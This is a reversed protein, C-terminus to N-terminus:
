GGIREELTEALEAIPVRVQEMTDRDRITVAQDDLTEYDITVCYPTGIEDQRRYRRGISQTEDYDTPFSVRLMRFVEEAKATLEPKKMLPLVAVQFPAIRPHFRLVVRTYPKGNVDRAEEEDYADLMLALMLREVGMTPEIVHPLFREGTQQDFYTLDAGSYEQHRRLDFDTRYALGCLEKWGFPFRYEFDVTRKSYHSLEEPGHERTRLWRDTLGVYRFFDAMDALWREFTPEWEEPRIFYEIEMQEFELLRFIFNGPTIENRFAKGIQGIGFPIKVRSTQLVNKYDVFIAQATEPRLYTRTGEAEVPGLWTQFMLNFERVPTWDRQGCVPCALGSSRIIETLEADSKGEANIGLKEEVLTDARYRSKCNRCDVLPDHFEEVHGSAEWVRPHLIIGGDIGVIDSRRRVFFEWWASKINRKLEVGLPGYDWTN